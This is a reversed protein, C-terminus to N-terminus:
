GADGEDSLDDEWGCLRRLTIHNQVLASFLFQFAKIRARSSGRLHGLQDLLWALVDPTGMAHVCCGGSRKQLPTRVLLKLLFVGSGEDQCSQTTQLLTQFPFYVRVQVQLGEMM